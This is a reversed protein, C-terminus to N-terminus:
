RFQFVKYFFQAIGQATFFATESAIETDELSIFNHHDVFHKRCFDMHSLYNSKESLLIKFIPVYLRSNSFLQICPKVPYAFSLSHGLSVSTKLSRCM